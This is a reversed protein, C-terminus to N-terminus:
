VSARACVYVCMNVDGSIPPAETTNNTARQVVSWEVVVLEFRPTPMDSPHKMNSKTENGESTARGM